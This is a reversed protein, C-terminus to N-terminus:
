HHRADEKARIRAAVPRFAESELYALTTDPVLDALANRCAPSLVSTNDPKDTRILERVTSASIVSGESELRPIERFAIGNEPLTDALVRHYIRTTESAQEEGAFRKTIPLARAIATFVAADILAHSQVVAAEDKQFYAPFTANSLLYPGSDHLVLGSLHACGERVLKKRVAFPFDSADESVLFLHVRAGHLCAQEVLHLHGRTFPNANMVIAAEEGTQSHGSEARLADLYGAFGNKKNELFSINGPVSAIEYFGIDKFFAATEYKTCLFLHSLGRSFADEILFSAVANLLGEGKKTERVALCRLTAGFMSGTAVIDDADDLAVCTFDLNRDRRLGQSALLEDVRSFSLRDEPHLKAIRYDSM